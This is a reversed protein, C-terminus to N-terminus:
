RRRIYIRIDGYEDATRRLLENGNRIASIPIREGSLPYDVIVLLIEGAKMEELTDRTRIDPVPCVEGRVDLLRDAEIHEQSGNVYYRCIGNSCDHSRYDQTESVFGIAEELIRFVRPSSFDFREVGKSYTSKLIGLKKM